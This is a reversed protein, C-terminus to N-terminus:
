PHQLNCCLLGLIVTMRKQFIEWASKSIPMNYGIGGQGDFPGSISSGMVEGEQGVTDDIKQVNSAAFMFQSCLWM